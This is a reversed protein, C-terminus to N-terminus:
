NSLQAEIKRKINTLFSFPSHLVKLTEMLQFFAVQPIKFQSVLGLDEFMTWTLLAIEEQDFLWVNCNYSQIAQMDTTSARKL